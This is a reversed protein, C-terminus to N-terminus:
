GIPEGIRQETEAEALYKQILTADAISIIGNGDVDAARFADGTLTLLELIHRQIETVDDVSVKGDLNADGLLVDRKEPQEATIELVGESSLAGDLVYNPNTIEAYIRYSGAEEGTERLVSLGIETANLPQGNADTVTYVFAPDDEGIQKSASAITVAVRKPRITFLVEGEAVTVTYNPNDGVQITIPYTGPAEGEARVATVDLRDRFALNEVTFTLKPDTEGYEKEAPDATVTVPRPVIRLVAEEVTVDYNNNTQLFFVTARHEGVNMGGSLVLEPVILGLRDKGILGAVSYQLEAKNFSLLSIDGYVIEDKCTVTIVAPAKEIVLTATVSEAAHLADGNFVATVAYEGANVPATRSFYGKGTYWYTIKGPLESGNETYAELAHPTGDYPVTLDDMKLTTEMGSVTYGRIVPAAVYNGGLLYVTEEYFGPVTIPESQSLIEGGLTVGTYLTGINASPVLTENDYLDGGFVFRQANDYSLTNSENEFASKFRLEVKNDETTGKPAIILYAVDASPTYNPDASVAATLYAGANQPVAALRITLDERFDPISSIITLITNFADMDFHMSELAGQINEDSLIESISALIDKLETVSVGEGIRQSLFAYTDFLTTNGIKIKMSEKVANPIDISLFGKADGDIGAIVRMYSLNEPTTRVESAPTEGYTITESKADISSPARRVYVYATGTCGSYRENGAYSVTVEQASLPDANLTGPSVTIAGEDFAIAEDNANYVTVADMIAAKLDDGYTITVTCVELRTVERPDTVTVTATAQLRIGYGPLECTVRVTETNGELLEGANGNGFSHALLLPTYDLAEYQAVGLVRSAEYEVTVVAGEAIEAPTLVANALIANELEAYKQERIDNLEVVCDNLTLAARAFTVTVEYQEGDAVPGFVTGDVQVGDKKVVVSQVYYQNAADATAKVEFTNGQAVKDLVTTGDSLIEVTGGENATVSVTAYAESVYSVLIDMDSAPTFAEGETVGSVTKLYGEINAATVTYTEDTFLRVTGSVPEGNLYVAGNENGSVTFAATYYLRVTLTKPEAQTWDPTRNFASGTTATTKYIMYRGAEVTESSLLGLETIEDPTDFSAYGYYAVVSTLANDGFLPYVNARTLKPNAASLELTKEEPAFVFQVTIAYVEGDAVPGYTPGALAEGNKTVTVSELAYGRGTDAVANVTFTSGEPIRDTLEEGDAMVSVTGGESGTLTFTAYTDKAYAVTVTLNAAPTFAEGETVGSVTKTYGEINAATVTYTEDTFLRVTGSVPEGNLCVAGNENGSVTFEATYYLRVTLAKSVAQTWDPKRNFAGGSAVTTKYIMYRGAEVTESSLLGLETIEDPTDALAYGYYAGVSTLANDGFLAYVNARTLKPNAASLELTVSDETDAYVTPVAISVCLLFVLLLSLTRRFISKQM